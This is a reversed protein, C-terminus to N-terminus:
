VDAFRTQLTLSSGVKVRPAPGGYGLNKGGSVTWVPIKHENCIKLIAQIHEVTVPYLSAATGRKDQETQDQHEAYPDSYRVRHEHGSLVGDDGLIAQFEALRKEWTSADMGPPLIDLTATREATKVWTALVEDAMGNEREHLALSFPKRTAM